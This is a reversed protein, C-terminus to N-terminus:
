SSVVHSESGMVFVPIVEETLMQFKTGKPLLDLNKSAFEVFHSQIDTKTTKETAIPSVM